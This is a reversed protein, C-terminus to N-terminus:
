VVVGAGGANPVAGCEPCREPTARLDYGCQPCLGSKHRRHRRYPAAFLFLPLILCVLPPVWAPFLIFEVISLRSPTQTPRREYGFGYLSKVGNFNNVTLSIDTASYNPYWGGHHEKKFADADRADWFSVIQEPHAFDFDNSVRHILYKGEALLVTVSRSRWLQQGPWSERRIGITRVVNFCQVWLVLTAIGLLLSLACLFPLLKRGARILVSHMRGRARRDAHFAPPIEERSRRM